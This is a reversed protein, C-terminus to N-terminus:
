NLENEDFTESNSEDEDFTESNSSEPVNLMEDYEVFLKGDGQGYLNCYNCSTGNCYPCLIFRQYMVPPIKGLVKRLISLLRSSIFDGDFYIASTNHRPEIYKKGDLLIQYVTDMSIFNKRTIFAIFNGYWYEKHIPKILKSVCRFYELNDTELLEEMVDILYYRYYYRDDQIDNLFDCFRITNNINRTKLAYDFLNENSDNNPDYNLDCYQIFVNYSIDNITLIFIIKTKHIEMIERNLKFGLQPEYLYNFIYIMININSYYLSFIKDVTSKDLKVNTNTLIWNLTDVNNLEYHSLEDIQGGPKVTYNLENHLVTIHDRLLEMENSQFYFKVVELNGFSLVFQTCRQLLNTTLSTYTNYNIIRQICDKAGNLDGYKLFILLAEEVTYHIYINKSIYKTEYFFQFDQFTLCNTIIQYKGMLQKLIYVNDLLKKYLPVRYLNLLLDYNSHLIVRESIEAM